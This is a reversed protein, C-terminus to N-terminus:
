FQCFSCWVRDVFSLPFSKNDSYYLSYVLNLTKLEVCILAFLDHMWGRWSMFFKNTYFIYFEVYAPDQLLRFLNCYHLTSDHFNPANWTLNKRQVSWVLFYKPMFNLLNFSYKYLLSLIVIKSRLYLTNDLLIWQFHAWIQFIHSLHFRPYLKM